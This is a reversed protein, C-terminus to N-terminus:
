SPRVQIFVQETGKGGLARQLLGLAVFGLPGQKLIMTLRWGTLILPLM